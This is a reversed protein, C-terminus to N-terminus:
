ERTPLRGKKEYPLDIQTRKGFNFMAGYKEFREMGLQAGLECFFTNCSFRLANRVSINGCGGGGHCKWTRGGLTYGGYCPSTSHENIIGEQLAALAILM